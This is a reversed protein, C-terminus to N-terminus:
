FEPVFLQVYGCYNVLFDIKGWSKNGLDNIPQFIGKTSKGNLVLIQNSKIKVDHKKSLQAIVKQEDYKRLSKAKMIEVKKTLCINKLNM